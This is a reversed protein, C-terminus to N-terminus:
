VSFFICGHSSFNLSIFNMLIKDIFFIVVYNSILNQRSRELNSLRYMFLFWWVGKIHRPRLTGAFSNSVKQNCWNDKREPHRKRVWAGRSTKSMANADLLFDGKIQGLKKKGLSAIKRLSTGPYYRKSRQRNMDSPTTPSRQLLYLKWGEQPKKKM